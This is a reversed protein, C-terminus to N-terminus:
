YRPVGTKKGIWDIMARFVPCQVTGHEDFVVERLDVVERLIAHSDVVERYPRRLHRQFLEEVVKKPPKSQNQEEPPQRWGSPRNSMKLRSQLQSTAALLLVELDHKLAGPYFRAIHSDVNARRGMQQQLHQKVLRTQIGQLEQLNNHKYETDAYDRNPYLDPLGVVLDHADNALKETARSGIKRFYKSKSDLPIVQIGWGKTSLVQKWGNLLASLAKVDSSGEVFIWVKM